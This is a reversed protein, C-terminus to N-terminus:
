DVVGGKQLARGGHPARAPHVGKFGAQCAVQIPEDELTV